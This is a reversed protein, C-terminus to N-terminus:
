TANNNREKMAINFQQINVAAIILGIITAGHKGSIIGGIILVLGLVINLGLILQLTKVKKMENLKKSIINIM